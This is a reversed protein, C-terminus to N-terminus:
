FLLQADPATAPDPLAAVWDLELSKCILCLAEVTYDWLAEPSALLPELDFAIDEEMQEATVDNDAM